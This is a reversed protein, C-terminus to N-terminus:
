SLSEYRAFIEFALRTTIIPSSSATDPGARVRRLHLAPIAAGRAHKCRSTARDKASNNIDVRERVDGDPASVLDM